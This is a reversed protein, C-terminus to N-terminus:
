SERVGSAFVRLIVSLLVTPSCSLSMGVSLSLYLLLSLSLSFTHTHTCSLSLVSNVFSLCLITQAPSFWLSLARARTHSVSLSAPLSSFAVRSLLRVALVGVTQVCSFHFRIATM